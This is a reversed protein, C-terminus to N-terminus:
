LTTKEMCLQCVKETSRILLCDQVITLEWNKLRAGGFTAFRSIQTLTRVNNDDNDSDYVLLLLVWRGKGLWSLCWLSLIACVCVCVCVCVCPSAWMRAAKISFLIYTARTPSHSRWKESFKIKIILAAFVKVKLAFFTRYIWTESVHITKLFKLSPTPHTGLGLMNQM